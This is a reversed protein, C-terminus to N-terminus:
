KSIQNVMSNLTEALKSLEESSGVVEEMSSSVLQSSASTQEIGASAEETISAIEAIATNLEVTNSSITELNTNIVRFNDVMENVSQQIEGFTEVTAQIDKTGKEVEAYSGSLSNAVENTELQMKEVIDTIENVSVGVQEALKRVEDAVVAFGKGHEGARAAEIAANLALLNTQNAIGNIVSVLNTIEQSQKDLSDMKTVADQVIRDIKSMQQSSTEMLESGKHTLSIVENSSSQVKEGNENAEEIKSILDRMTESINGASTAQVEAGAALEQMTASVQEMGTKVEIASHTLEEGHANVTGAVEGLNKFITQLNDNVANISTTLQGVEDKSKVALPELDIEGDVIQKMRTTVAKIPKSIANATAITIVVSLVVIIISLLISILTAQAGKSIVNQGSQKTLQERKQAMQNFSESLEVSEPVVEKMAIVQAKALNNREVRPFIEAEVLERWAISRAILDEVEKSESHSLVYDQLTTSKETIEDYIERFEKKGDMAYALVLSNQQAMNNALQEDAILLELDKDLLTKTNQNMNQTLLITTIGMALVLFVVIGFGVQIREKVSKFSLLKRKTQKKEKKSKRM